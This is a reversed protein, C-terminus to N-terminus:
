AVVRASSKLAGAPDIAEVVRLELAPFGATKLRRRAVQLARASEIAQEFLNQAKEISAGGEAMRALGLLHHEWAVWGREGHL